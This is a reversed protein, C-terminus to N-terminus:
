RKAPLKDNKLVQLLVKKRNVSSIFSFTAASFFRQDYNNNLLLLLHKLLLTSTDRGLTYKLLM